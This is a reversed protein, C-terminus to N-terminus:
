ETEVLCYAYEPKNFTQVWYPDTLHIAEAYQEASLWRVTKITKGEPLCPADGISVRLDSGACIFPGGQFDCMTPTGDAECAGRTFHTPGEVIFRNEDVRCVTRHQGYRSPEVTYFQPTIKM